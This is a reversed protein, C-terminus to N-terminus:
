EVEKNVIEQIPCIFIVKKVEVIINNKEVQM